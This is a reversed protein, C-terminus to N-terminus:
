ADALGGLMDFLSLQGEAGSKKAPKSTVSKEQRVEQKPKEKKETHKQEIKQVTGSATSSVNGIAAITKKIEEKSAHYYDTAYGYVIENPLISSEMRSNQARKIFNKYVMGTIFKGMEAVTYDPKEVLAALEDDMNDCLYEALTKVTPAIGGTCAAAEKKLKARATEISM